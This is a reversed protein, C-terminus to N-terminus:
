LGNVEWDNRVKIAGNSGGALRRRSEAVSQGEIAKSGKGEKM